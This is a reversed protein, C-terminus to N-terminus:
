TFLFKWRLRPTCHPNLPLTEGVSPLVVPRANGFLPDSDPAVPPVVPPTLPEGVATLRGTGPADLAAPRCRPETLPANLRSTASDARSVVPLPRTSDVGRTDVCFLM